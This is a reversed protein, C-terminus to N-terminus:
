PAGEALYSAPDKEFAARCGPCCFYYTTGDHEVSPSAADVTVTMGCVPDIAEVIQPLETTESGTLAGSARLHVLEALISVAM